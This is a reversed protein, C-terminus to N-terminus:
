TLQYEPANVLRSYLHRLRIEVVHKKEADEPSATHAKWADTWYHDQEQGTLLTDKKLQQLAAPSLPVQYLLDISDKVLLNPDAPDSFARAFAIVDIGFFRGERNYGYNIMTNSFENRKPFTSTNLWLTYFAPSQYYAPWGSVNPPSSYNQGLVLCYEIVLQWMSYNHLFSSSPAMSLNFERLLGISFDFPGKIMGGIISEDFFHRSCLLTKLVPKIGYNNKRLLAALPEIINKETSPNIDSHVFWRYLKRCLFLATEPHSFIMDLLENLEEEGAGPGSKGKILKKNYFASFVKDSSDHDGPEFYSQGTNLNVKWGTLVRAAQKVDDETFAANPGKGICFLEQLERAYNENPATKTNLEGNLYRLMHCDLTIAKALTKFNDLANRRVLYHKNWVLNMRGIVGETAFHNHWFLTMKELITSDQTILSEVIWKGLSGGRQEDDGQSVYPANIWTKGFPVLQPNLSDYDNLPFSDLAPADKLLADVSQKVDLALFRDIETKKVGFLSRKLLHTVQRTTWKGPYPALPDKIDAPITYDNKSPM